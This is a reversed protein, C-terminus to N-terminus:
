YTVEVPPKAPKAAPAPTTEEVAAGESEDTVGAVEFNAVNPSSNSQTIELTVRYKGGDKWASVLEDVGADSRDLTLTSM